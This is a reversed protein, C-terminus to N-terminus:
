AYAEGSADKYEKKLQDIRDQFDKKLNKSSTQTRKEMLDKIEAEIEALRKKSEFGISDLLSYKLSQKFVFRRVLGEAILMVLAAIIFFLYIGEYRIVDGQSKYVPDLIIHAMIVIYLIWGLKKALPHIKDLFMSALFMLLFPAGILMIAVLASSPGTLQGWLNEPMFRVGIASVIIGIISNILTNQGSGFIDISDLTGLIIILTLFFTAIRIFSEDGALTSLGLLPKLLIGVFNFFGAFVSLVVNSFLVVVNAGPTYELYTFIIALLIIVALLVLAIKNVIGTQGRKGSVM